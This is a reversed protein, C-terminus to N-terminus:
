RNPSAFFEQADLWRDRMLRRKRWIQDVVDPGLLFTDEDERSAALAIVQLGGASLLDITEQANDLEDRMIENVLRYEREGEGAQAAPARATGSLRGANRDRIIQVAFFNGCSRLICGYLRVAAAMERWYVGDPTDGVRQLSDAVSNLRERLASIAWIRPDACDLSMWEPLHRTGHVDIYDLRAREHSANFVHPLFYAEDEARLREPMLLLPRTIYRLSVGGYIASLRPLAARKYKLAENLAVLAEFLADARESGVWRECLRRALEYAVLTGRRPEALAADVAEVLKECTELRECTRDYHSRLDVFVTRVTDRLPTQLASLTGILDLVGRVPYCLDACSSVNLSGNGHERVFTDPPLHAAIAHLEAASFNGTMHVTLARGALRGGDHIAEVLGRVRQGMSRNRCGTPGNAGTYQCDSWCLGPGADNTKFFYTGLEPVHRVLEAVMRTTMARTEPHDICPAFAEHRSRRPHDTRPGRLAPQHEFFAEPLYNPEYSWFAAGLGLERLIRAKALLLERNARVFDQPVFPAIKADPFFRAPTPNCATYEHWPSGGEPVEHRAKQALTSINVEVHGHPSLRGAMTALRRFEVLDRIAANFVFTRGNPKAAPPAAIKANTPTSRDMM